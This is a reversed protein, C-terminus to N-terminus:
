GVATSLLSADSAHTGISAPNPRSETRAGHLRRTLDIVDDVMASLRRCKSAGAVDGTNPDIAAPALVVATPAALLRIRVEADHEGTRRTASSAVPSPGTTPLPDPTVKCLSDVDIRGHPVTLVEIEGSLGYRDYHLKVTFGTADRHISWNCAAPSSVSWSEKRRRLSVPERPHSPQSLCVSFRPSASSQASDSGGVSGTLRPQGFIAVTSNSGSRGPCRLLENRSPLRCTSMAAAANLWRNIGRLAMQSENQM